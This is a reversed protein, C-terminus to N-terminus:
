VEVRNRGGKKAKYLAKDVRNLFSDPDDNDKFQAVGFSGTVRGVEGFHFDKIIMLFKDALFKANDIDTELTLIIFEDGGWRAFVDTHRVNESVIRSIEKLVYDGVSHGYNDNIDKFNDIDFMIISLPMKYRLTRHIEEYLKDMLRKRNFVGTLVDTIAQVRLEEKEKEMKTVDTFAFVYKELEPFRNCTVLFVDADEQRGQHDLLNLLIDKDPNNIIYPLWRQEEQDSDTIKENWLFFDELRRKDIKFEDLSSYGLFNLFTKNIYEVGYKNTTVMFSPNADLVFRIYKNHVELERKQILVVISRFLADLLLYPDIPKMVYKDIGIDISRLFYAQENFATTLIIPIDPAIDKITKAMRLGDMTPMRIDTVVVDPKNKKFLELGELGNFATYLTGVKRKLFLSLQLHIEEDDEVYLVTITKLIKKREKAKDIKM